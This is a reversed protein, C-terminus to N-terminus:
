TKSRMLRRGWSGMSLPRNFLTIDDSPDLALARSFDDAARNLDGAEARLLGRNQYALRNKPDLRIAEDLDAECGRMDDLNYKTIARNM